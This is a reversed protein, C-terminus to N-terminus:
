AAESHAPATLSLEGDHDFMGPTQGSSRARRQGWQRELTERAEGCLIENVTWQQYALNAFHQEREPMHPYEIDALDDNALPYSAASVGAFVPVGATLADIAANSEMTVLAWANELVEAIPVDSDKPKVIIQRQTHKRLEWMTGRLWAQPDIGNYQAVWRSVPVLVIHKGDTRWPKVAIGLKEWRDAPMDGLDRYYRDNPVLRFHGKALTVRGVMTSLETRTERFYSHDCYLYDEGRDECDRLIDGTGRLIGYFISCSGEEPKVPVFEQGRDTVARICAARRKAKFGTALVNSMSENLAHGTTYVVYPKM